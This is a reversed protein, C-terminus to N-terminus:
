KETIFNIAFSSIELTPNIKGDFRMTEKSNVLVNESLFNTFSAVGVELESDQIKLDFPLM